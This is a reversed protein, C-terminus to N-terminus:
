GIHAADPSIKIKNQKIAMKLFIFYINYFNQINFELIQHIPVKNSLKNCRKQKNKNYRNM